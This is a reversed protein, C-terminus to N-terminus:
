IQFPSLFIFFSVVIRASIRTAASISVAQLVPPVDEAGDEAAPLSAPVDVAWAVPVFITNRCVCLLLENM